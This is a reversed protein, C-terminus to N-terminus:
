ASKREKGHLLQMQLNISNTKAKKWYSKFRIQGSCPSISITEINAPRSDLELLQHLVDRHSREVGVPPREHQPFLKSLNNKQRKKEGERGNRVRVARM